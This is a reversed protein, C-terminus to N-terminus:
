RRLYVNEKVIDTVEGISRKFLDTSEVTTYKKTVMVRWLQRLVSEVKQWTGSIEPLRDNM